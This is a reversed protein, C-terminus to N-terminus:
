AKGFVLRGLTAIVHDMKDVLREDIKGIYGMAQAVDVSAKVERASGLATQYRQRKHGQTNSMGEAINLVVSCMARRMQRALDSDRREIAVAVEGAGRAMELAVPYIRLM